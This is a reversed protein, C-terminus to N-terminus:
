LGTPARRRLRFGRSLGSAGYQGLTIAGVAVVLVFGQIMVRSGAGLGRIALAQDLM